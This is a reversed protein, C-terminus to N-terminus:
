KKLIITLSDNVQDLIEISQELNDDWRLKRRVNSISRKIHALETWVQNKDIATYIKQLVWDTPTVGLKDCDAMIITMLEHGPRFSIVEAKM